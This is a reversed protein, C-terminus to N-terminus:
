TEFQPRLSAGNRKEGGRDPRYGYYYPESMSSSSRNFVLGLIRIRRQRLMSLAEQAVRASTFAGRVVFLVGDVKPALNATDDTAMVPASDIIVLDHNEMAEKLFLDTTEKLFLSGPNLSTDGATLLSLGPISTPQIAERAAVTTGIVEAMGPAQAVGFLKHQTPRRLDADILLVRSGGLALTIALNAAVTSKGEQPVSSTVVMFRPREQETFGFLLGSRMTTFAESFEHRADQPQLLGLPTKRRHKEEPVQGVVLESLQGRLEAITAFRDDFQEILYLVGLGLFLGLLLGLMLFKMKRNIPTAASAQDLVSFSDQELNKSVDVSQVTSALRDYFGQLRRIEQQIRDYEALKVSAEAAKKEWEEYATELSKIQLAISSQRNRLQKASEQRFVDLIKEQDAILKELKDMKPHAPRLYRALEDRKAKLLVLQQSAKYMDAQPGSMSRLFDVAASQGPLPEAANEDMWKSAIETVQDPNLLEILQSELRLSTLQRNIRALYAAASSGQEQFVLLQNKVQFARSKEQQEFIEGELRALQNTFSGQAADSSRIREQRRFDLYEDMLANLFARTAVPDVGTARLEFVSAKPIEKVSLAFPAAAAFDANTSGLDWDPHLQRLRGLAQHYVTASELLEVQSALEENFGRGESLNLKGRMWVRAKSEYTPPLKATLFSVAGLCAAVCVPVVWWYRRLMLQYRHLRDFFRTAEAFRGSTSSSLPHSAHPRFNAAM